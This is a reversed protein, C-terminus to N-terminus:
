CALVGSSCLASPQLEQTLPLLCILGSPPPKGPWPESMVQYTVKLLHSICLSCLHIILNKKKKELFTNIKFSSRQELAM